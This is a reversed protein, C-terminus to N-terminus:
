GKIMDDDYDGTEIAQQRWALMKFYIKKMNKVKHRILNPEM